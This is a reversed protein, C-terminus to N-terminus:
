GGKLFQAAVRGMRRVAETMPELDIVGYCLRMQDKPKPEQTEECFCYYGPVYLVKEELVANFFPSGPDNDVGPLRVWVYLGGKPHLIETEAPWHERLAQVLADRKVRYRERFRAAATEYSGMRLMELLIRQNMNSSGFDQNAKQRCLATHVEPPMYSWGLRLGPALAKSFTGTAFIHENGKDFEKMYPEPEGELTLDRYCADEIPLFIPGKTIEELYIDYLERRRRASMNSGKPNSYYSMLYLIRLRGRQGSEHLERLRDRLGEPTMGEEDTSVGLVRAGVSKLVDMYVFYTPDEVLVIDGPDVFAETVTYLGQQGGNTIAICDPDVNSLGQEELRSAVTQRLPLYGPTTGYQLADRGPGAEAFVKHVAAEVLDNPLTGTDVFGAALSLIEPDEITKRMLWAIPSDGTRQAKQSFPFATTATSSM